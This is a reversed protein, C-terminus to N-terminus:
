QKRVFIKIRVSFEDNGKIIEFTHNRPYVLMLRQKANNIGIGLGQEKEFTKFSDEYSNICSFEISNNNCIVSLSLKSPKSPNIGYKFANEVFPIFIGPSIVYDECAKFTTDVQPEVACRLKQINIYDQLYRIEDGLPIFDENIDKQMYRLLNSLRIISESTRGADEALATAYLTNLTNFLFHPNVQSKLLALESEKEGLRVNLYRERSKARIRIFSYIFSLFLSITLVIVSPTSFAIEPINERTYQIGTEPNFKPLGLASLLITRFLFYIVILTLLGLLFTTIKKNRLLIPTLLFTNTYFVLVIPLIYSIATSGIDGTTIILASLLTIVIVHVFAELYPLIARIGYVLICYFGSLIFVILFPILIIGAIRSISGMSLLQDAEIGAIQDPPSTRAVIDIFLIAMTSFFVVISPVLFNLYKRKNNEELLIPLLVINHIFFLAAGSLFMYVTNRVARDYYSFQTDQSAAFLIWGFVIFFLLNVINKKTVIVSIRVTTM